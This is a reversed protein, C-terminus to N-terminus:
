EHVEINLNLSQVEGEVAAIIKEEYSTGAYDEMWTPPTTEEKFLLLWLKYKGSKNISLNVKREWQPSWNEEVNVPISELSVVISDMYYLHNIVMTDNHMSYNVLWIEITYNVTRHEHNVLGITISFNEGISLSTPYGYAKGEEGLIYFETFSEGERPTIIIFILTGISIIISSVLIASLIRDLKSSTSFTKKLLWTLSPLNYRDDEPLHKRRIYAIMSFSLIFVYLLLTVPILRIGFPTYNLGLGILPTVAISLGFSLAIREIWDIEKGPFLAAILFYGPLFLIFPLGLIIRLFVIDPLIFITIVLITSTTVGLIIDRM